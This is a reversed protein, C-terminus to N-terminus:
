YGHNNKTGQPDLQPVGELHGNWPKCIPTVLQKCTMPGSGGLVRGTMGQSSWHEAKPPDLSLDEFGLHKPDNQFVLIFISWLEVM